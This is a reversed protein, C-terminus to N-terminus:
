ETITTTYSIRLCDNGLLPDVHWLINPKPNETRYSHLTFYKPNECLRTQLSSPTESAYIAEMQLISSHACYPVPLLFSVRRNQFNLHCTKGFHQAKESSCGSVNCVLTSQM